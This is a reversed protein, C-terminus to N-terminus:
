ECSTKTSDLDTDFRYYMSNITQITFHEVHAPIVNLALVAQSALTTFISNFKRLFCDLFAIFISIKFHEHTTSAPVNNRTAQRGCKCLVALGELGSLRAM